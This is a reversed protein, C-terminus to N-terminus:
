DSVILDSLSRYVLGAGLQLGGIIESYHLLDLPCLFSDAPLRLLFFFFLQFRFLTLLLFFFFDVSLWFALVGRRSHNPPSRLCCM